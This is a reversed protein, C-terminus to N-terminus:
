STFSPTACVLDFGIDRRHDILETNAAVLCRGCRDGIVAPVIDSLREM